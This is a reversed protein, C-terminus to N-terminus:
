RHRADAYARVAVQHLCLFTTIESARAAWDENETLRFADLCARVIKRASELNKKVAKLSEDWRKPSGGQLAGIADNMAFLATSIDGHVNRWAGLAALFDRRKNEIADGEPGVQVELFSVARMFPPSTLERVAIEAAAECARDCLTEALDSLTVSSVFQDIKARLGVSCVLMSLLRPYGYREVLAAAGNEGSMVAGWLCREVSEALLEAADGQAMVGFAPDVGAAVPFERLVRSCFGHITSIQATELASLHRKWRMRDSHETSGTYLRRLREHIRGKLEGAAKETFTIAVIRSVEALSQTLINIYREVLTGTKGCGAGASLIVSRGLCEAARRQQESLKGKKM